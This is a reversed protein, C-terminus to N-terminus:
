FNRYTKESRFGVELVSLGEKNMRFIIRLKGRKIRFIDKHGKLKTMDLGFFDRALLRLMLSDFLVRYEKPLKAIAKQLDNM